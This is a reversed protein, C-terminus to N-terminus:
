MFLNDASFDDQINQAIFYSHNMADCPMAHRAMMDRQNIECHMLVLSFEIFDVSSRFSRFNMAFYFCFYRNKNISVSLAHSMLTDILSPDM